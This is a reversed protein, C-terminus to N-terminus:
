NQQSSTKYLPPLKQQNHALYPARIFISLIKNSTIGQFFVNELCFSMDLCKKRNELFFNLKQFTYVKKVKKVKKDKLKSNDKNDKLVCYIVSNTINVTKLLWGLM